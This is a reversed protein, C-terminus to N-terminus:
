GTSPKPSGRGGTQARRWPNTTRGHQPGGVLQDQGVHKHGLTLEALTGHACAFVGGAANWSWMQRNIQVGKGHQLNPDRGAGLVPDQWDPCQPGKAAGTSNPACSDTLHPVLEDLVMETGNGTAAKFDEIAQVMGGRAGDWDSFPKTLSTDDCGTGWHCSAVEPRPFVGPWGAM